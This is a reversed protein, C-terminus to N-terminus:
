GVMSARMVALARQAAAKQLVTACYSANSHVVRQNDVKGVYVVREEKKATDYAICNWIEAGEYPRTVVFGSVFVLEKHNAMGLKHRFRFYGPSLSVQVDRGGAHPTIKTIMSMQVDISRTSPRAERIAARIVDSSIDLYRRIPQYPQCEKMKSRIDKINDYTTRIIRGLGAPSVVSWDDFHEAIPRNAEGYYSKVGKIIAARSKGPFMVLWDGLQRRAMNLAMIESQKM